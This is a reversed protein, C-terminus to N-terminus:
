IVLVARFRVDNAMMRTFAEEARELGFKEIRARVGNRASFAMAEESDISTGSPWGAVAKGSLV